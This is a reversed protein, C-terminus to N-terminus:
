IKVLDVYVMKIKIKKDQKAKISFNLKGSVKLFFLTNTYKFLIM